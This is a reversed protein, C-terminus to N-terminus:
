TYGFFPHTVSGGDEPKGFIVELAEEVSKYEVTMLAYKAVLLDCGLDNIMRNEMWDNILAIDEDKEAAAHDLKYIPIIHENLYQGFRLKAQTYSTAAHDNVNNRQQPGDHILLNARNFGEQFEPGKYNM